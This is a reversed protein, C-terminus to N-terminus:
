LVEMLYASHYKRLNLDSGQKIGNLEAKMTGQLACM